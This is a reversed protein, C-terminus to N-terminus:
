EDEELFFLEEVPKNFYRAIQLALITTLMYRQSEISNITQRSVGLADALQQQTLDRTARHVKLTNRM